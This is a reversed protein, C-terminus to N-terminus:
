DHLEFTFDNEGDPSVTVELGSCRPNTYQRPLLQKVDPYPSGNQAPNRPATKSIIVAYKGPLAGDASTFTTLEFHGAEDTIASAPRNGECLFIVDAGPVARGRYLVQGTVSCTEPRGNGCGFSVALSTLLLSGLVLVWANFYPKM